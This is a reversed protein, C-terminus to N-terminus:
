CIIKNCIYFITFKNDNLGIFKIENIFDLKHPPTNVIMFKIYYINYVDYPIDVHYLCLTTTEVYM